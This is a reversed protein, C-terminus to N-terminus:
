VCWCKGLVLRHGLDRQNKRLFCQPCPFNQTRVESVPTAPNMTHAEQALEGSRGPARAALPTSPGSGAGEGRAELERAERELEECWSRYIYYM